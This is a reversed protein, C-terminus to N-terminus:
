QSFRKKKKKKKKGKRNAMYHLKHSRLERVQSQVLARLLLLVSDYVSSLQSSGQLPMKSNSLQIDKSFLRLTNNLPVSYLHPSCKGSGRAALHPWTVLEVLLVQSSTIHHGKGSAKLFCSHDGGSENGKQQSSESSPLARSCPNKVQPRGVHIKHYFKPTQSSQHSLFSLKIKM